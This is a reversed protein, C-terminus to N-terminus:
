LQFHATLNLAKQNLKGYLSNFASQYSSEAALLTGEVLLANLQLLEDFAVRWTRPRLHRDRTRPWEGALLKALREHVRLTARISMTEALYLPRRASLWTLHQHYLRLADCLARAEDRHLPLQQDLARLSQSLSQDLNM